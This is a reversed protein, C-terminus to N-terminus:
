TLTWVQLDVECFTYFQKVNSMRVYFTIENAVMAPTMAAKVHPSNAAAASESQAGATKARASVDATTASAAAGASVQMTDHLKPSCPEWSHLVCVYVEIVVALAFM